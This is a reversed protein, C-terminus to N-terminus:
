PGPATAAPTTAPVRGAIHAAVHEADRGVGGILASTIATLFFLGVFYLGPQSAVVGRDHRPQGGADFVPLDIWGFDPRFGTCWVVNAVELVRGDELLPLGDRAGVTRPVRQIGAAALDRRRVRALPAAATLLKPRLRRGVPNDVSLVRSLTFWLAPTSLRDIRGGARAPESGPHPGSLWTPHTASVELAIEAGSNAAGVVLVPGDRLQAPRRYGTSHLQLVQPGLDPAFSPVRPRSYAGTAVVLNDAEFRRDGAAVLYRDEQRTLGDARVGSRVPLQFRAAYAELYDAVEDRTPYHWPAAPFAWGPLGSYRAPTFLRLSDWRGRWPDGVREGADLIVFPRGQRALHYGAALGAQGGGVIVTEFREPERGQGDMAAEEEPDASGLAPATPGADPSGRRKPAGPM